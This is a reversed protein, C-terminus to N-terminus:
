APWDLLKEDHEAEDQDEESKDKMANEEEAKDGEDIFKEMQAKEDETMQSAKNEELEGKRQKDWSHLAGYKVMPDGYLVISEQGYGDRGPYINWWSMLAEGTDKGERLFNAFLWPDQAAGSKATGISNLGYKMTTVTSGLNDVIYSSSSCSHMFFMSGGLFPQGRLDERDFCKTYGASGHILWRVFLYQIGAYNDAEIVSPQTGYGKPWFAQKGTFKCDEYTACNRAPPTGDPQTKRCSTFPRLPKPQGTRWVDVDRPFEWVDGMGFAGKSTKADNGRGIDYYIVLPKNGTGPGIEFFKNGGERWRHLKDFYFKYEDITLHNLLGVALDMVKPQKYRPPIFIGDPKNCQEASKPFVEQFHMYYNLTPHTWICGKCKAKEPRCQSFWSGVGKKNVATSFDAERFSPCNMSFHVAPFHGVLFAARPGRAKWEGMLLRRLERHAGAAHVVPLDMTFVEASIGQAKLDKIYTNIEQKLQPQLLSEVVIALDYMKRDPRRFQCWRGYYPWDCRGCYEKTVKEEGHTKDINSTTSVIYKVAGVLYGHGNCKEHKSESLAPVCKDEELHLSSNQQSGPESPSGPNTPNPMHTPESPDETTPPDAPTAPTAPPGKLAAMAPTDTCKAVCKWRKNGNEVRKRCKAYAEQQTRRKAHRNVCKIFSNSCSEPCQGPDEVADSQSSELDDGTQSEQLQAETVKELRM